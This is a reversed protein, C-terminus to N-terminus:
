KQKSSENVSVTCIVEAVDDKFIEKYDKPAEFNSDEIVRFRTVKSVNITNLTDKKPEKSARHFLASFFGEDEEKRESEESDEEAGEGYKITIEKLM